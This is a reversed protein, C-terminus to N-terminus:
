VETEDTEDKFFAEFFPNILFRSFPSDATHEDDFDGGAAQEDDHEEDDTPETNIDEEHIPDVNTDEDTLDVIPVSDPSIDDESCESSSVALPRFADVAAVEVRYLVNCTDCYVFKDRITIFDCDYANNTDIARFLCTTLATGERNVVEM